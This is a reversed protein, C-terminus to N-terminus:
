NRLSNLAYLAIKTADKIHKEINKAVTDERRNAIAVCIAGARYGLGNMFHLLFSSEMEMNEIKLENFKLKSLVEDIDPLTLPLRMIDRGQHSFFGSNSVTIGIKHKINLKKAANELAVVVNANAKAAYSFIKNNFRSEPSITNNVTINVSEEIKKCEEDSPVEVFLGSNDLGVSYKSILATGLETDLQLSGSTGVRIININRYTKKRKRTKFDIENLAVIENLVIELSPTGMGSTIISIRQNTEKVFGTISRLGRHFRENEIKSLFEDAILSVRDPDGVILIDNSIEEPLLDLHYIRGDANIPLDSATFPGNTM